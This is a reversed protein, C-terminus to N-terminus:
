QFNFFYSNLYQAGPLNAWRSLGIELWNSNFDACDAGYWHWRSYGMVSGQSQQSNSQVTVCISHMVFSSTQHELMSFDEM